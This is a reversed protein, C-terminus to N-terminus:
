LFVHAKASTECATGELIYMFLWRVMDGKIIDQKSLQALLFVKVIIVRTSNQLIESNLFCVLM